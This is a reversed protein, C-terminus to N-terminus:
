QSIVLQLPLCTVQLPRGTCNESIICCAVIRRLLVQSMGVPALMVHIVGIMPAGSEEVIGRWILPLVSGSSSIFLFAPARFLCRAYNEGLTCSSVDGRSLPLVRCTFEAVVWASAWLSAFHIRHLSSPAVLCRRHHHHRHSSSLTTAVVVHSHFHHFRLPSSSM